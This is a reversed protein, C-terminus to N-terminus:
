TNSNHTSEKGHCYPHNYDIDEPKMGVANLNDLFPGRQMHWAPRTPRNKDNGCCLDILVVHSNTRVLFAHFSLLLNLSNKAFHQPALADRAKRIVDPTADPFIVNAPFAINEIDVVRNISITGVQCADKATDWNVVRQTSKSEFM